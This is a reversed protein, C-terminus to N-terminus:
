YLEWGEKEMKQKIEKNSLYNSYFIVEKAEVLYEAGASIVLIEDSNVDPRVFAPGEVVYGAKVVRGKIPANLFSFVGVILALVVMLVFAIEYKRM